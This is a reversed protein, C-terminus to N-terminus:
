AHARDPSVGGAVRTLREIACSVYGFEELLVRGQGIGVPDPDEFPRFSRDDCTEPRTEPLFVIGRWERVVHVDKLSGVPQRVRLHCHHSIDIM